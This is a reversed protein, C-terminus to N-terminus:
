PFDWKRKERLEREKERIRVQRLYNGDEDDSDMDQNEEEEDEAQDDEADVQEESKVNRHKYFDEVLSFLKSSFHETILKCIFDHDQEKIQDEVVDMISTVKKSEPKEEIIPANAARRKANYRSVKLVYDAMQMKFKNQVAEPLHHAIDWRATVKEPASEVIGSFNYMDKYLLISYFETATLTIYKFM